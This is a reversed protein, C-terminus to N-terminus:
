AAPESRGVLAAVGGCVLGLVLWALGTAFATPQRVAETALPVEAYVRTGHFRDFAAADYAAATAADLHVVAQKFAFRKERPLRDGLPDAWFLGLMGVVVVAMAIVGASGDPAGVRRGLLALGGAASGVGLMLVALAGLSAVSGGLIVHVLLAPLLAAALGLMSARTPRLAFAAVTAFAAMGAVDIQFLGRPGEDAFPLAALM